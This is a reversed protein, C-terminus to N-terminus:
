HTPIKEKKIVNVMPIPEQEPLAIEEGKFAEMLEKATDHHDSTNLTMVASALGAQFGARWAIQSAEVLEAASTRIRAQVEPNNTLWNSKIEQLAQEETIAYVPKM